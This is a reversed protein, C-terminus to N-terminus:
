EIGPAAKITYLNEIFGTMKGTTTFERGIEGAKMSVKSFIRYLFNDVSHMYRRSDESMNNYIREAGPTVNARTEESMHRSCTLYKTQPIDARVNSFEYLDQMGDFHGYQYKTLLTDVEDYTPGDYWSVRVADGGTFNDSRVSFKIGPFKEKLEKRVAKACLAATSKM